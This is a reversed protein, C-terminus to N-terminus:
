RCCLNISGWGWCSGARNVTLLCCIALSNDTLQLVPAQMGLDVAQALVGQDTVLKLISNQKRDGSQQDENDEEECFKSM